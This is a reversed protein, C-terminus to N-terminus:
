TTSLLNGKPYCVLSCKSQLGHSYVQMCHLDLGVLLATQGRIIIIDNHHTSRCSTLTTICERGGEGM